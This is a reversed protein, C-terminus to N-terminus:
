ARGAEALVESYLAALRAAVGDWSFRAQALSAGAEAAAARTAANELLRRLAAAWAEPTRERVAFEAAGDGLAVALDALGAVRAFLAPCGAAWAELVSLGFAEHLSPVLAVRARALLDPVDAPEVNGILHVRGFVGLARAEAEIAARYGRDTEPGALVLRHDAPAALAFARVALLQDKQACLRAVQVILPADGLAPWLLRARDANGKAFRAFDVGHDMRVARRGVRATLARQEEDNFCIVRAADDIM